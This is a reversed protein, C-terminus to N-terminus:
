FSFCFFRCTSFSVSLSLSHLLSTASLLLSICASVSPSVCDLDVLLIVSFCLSTFTPFCLFPSLCCLTVSLFLSSCLSDPLFVSFCGFASLFVRLFLSSYKVMLLAHAFIYQRISRFLHLFSYLTLPWKLRWEFFNHFLNFPVVPELFGM